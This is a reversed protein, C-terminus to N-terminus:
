APPFSSEGQECQVELHQAEENGAMLEKMEVRAGRRIEFDLWYREQDERQVGMSVPWGLDLAEIQELRTKAPSEREYLGLSIANSFRGRPIVYYDTVGRAVLQVVADSAQEFDGFPELYVWYGQEVVATTERWSLQVVSPELEDRIRLFDSRSAIPGLTFCQRLNQGAGRLVPAAERALQIAPLGSIERATISARTAHGAADPESADPQLAKWGWILLNLAFLGIVIIRLIM